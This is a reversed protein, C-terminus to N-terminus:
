DILFVFCIRLLALFLRPGEKLAPRCQVSFDFAQVFQKEVDQRISESRTFIAVHSSVRQKEALTVHFVELLKM